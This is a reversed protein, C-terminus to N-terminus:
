KLGLACNNSLLRNRFHPGVYLLCTTLRRCWVCCPCDTAFDSVRRYFIRTSYSSTVYLTRFGINKSFTWPCFCGPLYLNCFAFYKTDFHQEVWIGITVIMTTNTYKDYLLVLNTFGVFVVLLLWGLFRASGLGARYVTSPHLKVLASRCERHIYM